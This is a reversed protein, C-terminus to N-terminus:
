YVFMKVCRIRLIGIEKKGTEGSTQMTDVFFEHPLVGVERFLPSAGALVTEAWVFTQVTWCVM